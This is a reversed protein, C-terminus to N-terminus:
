KASLKKLSSFWFEKGNENLASLIYSYNVGKKLSTITYDNFNQPLLRVSHTFKKEGSERYYINYVKAGLVGQKVVKAKSYQVNTAAFALDYFFLFLLLFVVSVSFAKKM